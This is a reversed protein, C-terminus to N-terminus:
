KYNTIEILVGEAANLSINFKEGTKIDDTDMYYLSAEVYDTFSIEAECSDTLSNNVFYFVSKGMYDFCGVLLDDSTKIEKIERYNQVLNDQEIKCPSNGFAMQCMLTSKMLIHDMKAIQKNIKQGAYYVDTPNGNGDIFSGKYGASTFEGPQFYCFYQIGKAGYALSVNVQWYIDQANPVRTTGGYECAQIFPWLPVKYEHAFKANIYLQELYGNKVNPFEKNTGYYDYSFFQPGLLSLYTNVYEDYTLDMTNSGGGAGNELQGKNAYNPLLNIYFADKPLHKRFLKRISTLGYMQKVGPEDILLTGGYAPHTTYKKIYELFEQEDESYVAMGSDRVLYVIDNNHAHDLAKMVETPSYSYNDHLGYIANLGSQKLLKYQQDTNFEGTPASWAGIPMVDKEFQKFTYSFCDVETWKNLKKTEDEGPLPDVIPDDKPDDAPTSDTCSAIAFISNLTLVALFSKKLFKNM